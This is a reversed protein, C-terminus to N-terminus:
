NSSRTRLFISSVVNIFIALFFDVTLYSRIQTLLFIKNEKLSELSEQIDELKYNNALYAEKTVEIVSEKYGPILYVGILTWVILISIITAITRFGNGFLDGFFAYGKLNRKYIVNLVIVALSLLIAPLMELVADGSVGSFFKIAQTIVIILGIILAYKTNQRKAIPKAAEYQEEININNDM